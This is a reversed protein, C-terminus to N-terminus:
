VHAGNPALWCDWAGSNHISAASRMHALVMIYWRRRRRSTSTHLIMVLLLMLPMHVLVLVLRLGLGLGVRELLMRITSSSVNGKTVVLRLLAPERGRGQLLLLVICGHVRLRIPLM